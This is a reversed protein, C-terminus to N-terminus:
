LKRLVADEVHSCVADAVLTQEDVIAVAQPELKQKTADSGHEGPLQVGPAEHIRM